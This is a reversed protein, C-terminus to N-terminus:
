RRMTWLAVGIGVIWFLLASATSGIVAALLRTVASDLLLVALLGVVIVLGHVAKIPPNSVRQRHM